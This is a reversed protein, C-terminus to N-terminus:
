VNGAQLYSKKKWGTARQPDTHIYVIHYIIQFFRHLTKCLPIKAGDVTIVRNTNAILPTLRKCFLEFHNLGKDM